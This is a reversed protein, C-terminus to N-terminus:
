LAQVNGLALIANMGICAQAQARNRWHQKDLRLINRALHKKNVELNREKTTLPVDGEEEVGTQTKMRKELLVFKQPNEVRRAWSSLRIGTRQPDKCWISFTFGKYIKLM